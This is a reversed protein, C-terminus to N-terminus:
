DSTASGHRHSQWQSNPQGDGGNMSQMMGACNSMMSGSMDGRSMMGHDMHNRSATESRLPARTSDAHERAQALMPLALSALTAALAAATLSYRIPMTREKM